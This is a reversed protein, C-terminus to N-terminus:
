LVNCLFCAALGVKGFSGKGLVKLFTFDNPAFKRTMAQGEKTTWMKEYEDDTMEDTASREKGSRIQCFNFSFVTLSQLLVNTERFFRVYVSGLSPSVTTKHIVM